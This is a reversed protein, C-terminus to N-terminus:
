PWPWPVGAYEAVDPRVLRSVLSLWGTQPTEGPQTGFGAGRGDGDTGTGSTTAQVGDPGPGPTLRAPSPTARRCGKRRPSPAGAHPEAGQSGVGLSVLCAAILPLFM